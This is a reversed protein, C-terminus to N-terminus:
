LRSWARGLKLLGQQMASQNRRLCDRWEDQAGARRPWHRCVQELLEFHPPCSDYCLAIGDACSRRVLRALKDPLPAPSLCVRAGHFLSSRWFRQQCRWDDLLCSWTRAPFEISWWWVPHNM